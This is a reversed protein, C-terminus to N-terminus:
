IMEYRRINRVATAVEGVEVLGNNGGDLHRLVLMAEAPSLEFDLNRMFAALEDVDLGHNGAGDGTSGRFSESLRKGTRTQW